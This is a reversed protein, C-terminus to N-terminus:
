LDVFLHKVKYKKELEQLKETLRDVESQLIATTDKESELEDKQKEMTTKITDMSTKIAFRAKVEQEYKAKYEEYIALENNLRRIEADKEEITGVLSSAHQEKQNAESDLHAITIDTQLGIDYRDIVRKRRSPSRVRNNSGDLMSGTTSGFYRGDLEEAL